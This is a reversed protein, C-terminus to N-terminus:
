IGVLNNFYIVIPTNIFRFTSYIRLNLKGFLSKGRGFDFYFSDLPRFFLAKWNTVQEMDVQDEDDEDSYGEEARWRLYHSRLEFLKERRKLSSRSPPLLGTVLISSVLIPVSCLAFLSLFVVSLFLWIYVNAATCCEDRRM